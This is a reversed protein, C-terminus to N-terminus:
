RTEVVSLCPDYLGDANSRIPLAVIALSLTGAQASRHPGINERRMWEDRAQRAAEITAFGHLHLSLDFGDGVPNMQMHAGASEGLVQDAPRLEDEERDAVALRGPM